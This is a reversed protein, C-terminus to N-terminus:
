DFTPLARELNCRRELAAALALCMEQSDKLARKRLRLLIRHNEAARAIAMRGARDSALAPFDVTITAAKRGAPDSRYDFAPNREYEEPSREFRLRAREEFSLTSQFESISQRVAPDDFRNLAGSAVVDDYVSLPPALSVMYRGRALGRQMREADPVTWTGRALRDTAVHLDAVIAEANRVALTLYAVDHEAEDLLREMAERSAAAEARRNAWDNIQFGLLVGVVVLAFEIAVMTWDQRKLSATMRKLIM